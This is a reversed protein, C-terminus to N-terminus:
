APALVTLHSRTARALESSRVFNARAMRFGNIFVLYSASLLGSADGPVVFDLGHGLGQATFVDRLRRGARRLIDRQSEDTTAYARVTSGAILLMSIVPIKKWAHLFTGDTAGPVGQWVPDRGTVEEM